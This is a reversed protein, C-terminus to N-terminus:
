LGAPTADSTSVPLVASEASKAGGRFVRRRLDKYVQEAEYRERLLQQLGDDRRTIELMNRRFAPERMKIAVVPAVPPGGQMIPNPVNKSFQEQVFQRMQFAQQGAEALARSEYGAQCDRSKLLTGTSAEVTCHVDFDPIQNLQNYRELFRDELDVLQQRLEGLKARTGEVMVPDLTDDSAAHASEPLRAMGCLLVLAMAGSALNKQWMM